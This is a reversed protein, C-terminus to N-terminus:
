GSEESIGYDMAGGLKAQTSAAQELRSGHTVRLPILGSLAFLLIPKLAVHDMATPPMTPPPINETRPTTMLM